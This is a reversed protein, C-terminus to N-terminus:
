AKRMKEKDLQKVTFTFYTDPFPEARLPKDNSLLFIPFESWRKKMRM